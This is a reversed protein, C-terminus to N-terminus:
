VLRLSQPRSASVNPLDSLVRAKDPFDNWALARVDAVVRYERGVFDVYPKQHTIEIVPFPSAYGGLGLIIGVAVLGCAAFAAWKLLAVTFRFPTLGTMM